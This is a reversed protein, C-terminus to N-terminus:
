ESADDDEDKGVGLMADVDIRTFHETGDDTGRPPRYHARLLLARLARYYTYPLKAVQAPNYSPWEHAIRGCM